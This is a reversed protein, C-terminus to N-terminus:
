CKCTSGRATARGPLSLGCHAITWLGGQPQLPSVPYWLQTDLSLTTGASTNNRTCVLFPLVIFLIHGTPNKGEKKVYLSLSDSPLHYTQLPRCQLCILFITTLHALIHLPWELLAKDQTPVADLAIPEWAEEVSWYSIEVPKLFKEPKEAM